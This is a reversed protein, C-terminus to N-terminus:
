FSMEIEDSPRAANSRVERTMRALDPERRGFTEVLFDLFVRMKPAMQPTRPFVAYLAPDFGTPTLDYDPLIRKIRGLGLEGAIIWTPLLAIGIGEMAANRLMPVDNVQLSGSVRLERVGSADRYFWSAQGDEMDGEQPISLCNHLLLDQPHRIPPHNRLYAPSAFLVRDTGPSLRRVMMAPEDPVGIRISVDVKSDLVDRPEETLWLRLRIKPYLKLFQPLADTLFESGISVRTHVTLLGSPTGQHASLADSLADMQDLILCAKEYYMEGIQTLAIKRSTRNLLRAGTNEELASIKRSVSAASMGMARGAASLSGARVVRTFVRMGETSDM